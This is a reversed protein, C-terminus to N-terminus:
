RRRGVLRELGELFDRCAQDDMGALAAEVERRREALIQDAMVQARSSLRVRVVRQDEPDRSRTVYGLAVLPKVLGTASAMTIQMGEALEGMTQPGYQALHVLTRVQAASVQPVEAGTPPAGGRTSATAGGAEAPAGGASDTPASAAPPHGATAHTAVDRNLSKALEPLVKLVERIIREREEM